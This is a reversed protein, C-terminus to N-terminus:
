GKDHQEGKRVDTNVLCTFCYNPNYVKETETMKKACGICKGQATRYIASTWNM